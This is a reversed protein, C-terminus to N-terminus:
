SCIQTKELIVVSLMIVVVWTGMGVYRSWKISEHANGPCLKRGLNLTSSQDHGYVREQCGLHVYGLVTFIVVCAIVATLIRSSCRDKNRKYLVIILAVGVTIDKIHDYADGLKTVQDYKRAYHGDLCDFFYSLLYCVCFVWIKGKWLAWVALLGFLLSITTIGNPTFGM